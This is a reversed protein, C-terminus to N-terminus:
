SGATSSAAWAEQAFCWRARAIQILQGSPRWNEREIQALTRSLLADLALSHPMARHRPCDELPAHGSRGRHIQPSGRCDQGAGNGDAGVRLGDGPRMGQGQLQDAAIRGADFKVSLRIVDGCVPNEIEVTADHTPCTGPTARIRSTISSNRPICRKNAPQNRRSLLHDM